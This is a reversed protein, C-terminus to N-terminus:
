FLFSMIPAIVQKKKEKKLLALINLGEIVIVQSKMILVVM